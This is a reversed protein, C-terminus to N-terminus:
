LTNANLSRIKAVLTQNIKEYSEYTWGGVHPTFIVNDHQILLDFYHQQEPTFQKIKENELVDLAAGKLKGSELAEVLTKFSINKGRATNLLYINKRFKQLYAHDLMFRTEETLPVHLSLIDAKQYIEEMSAEQAFADGYHTKYKDYALVEVGFGQLRRAFAQGMFGYGIIGVTKGILEVGRNGERDWNGQRIQCDALHVKNFLGLLIAIAHEALADRNGEPANVIRINRAELAEVDLQDLGAGARGIWELKAARDIIKKDINTKSRVILGQYQHISKLIEERKIEPRYEVQWGIQQLLPIISEHMLDIILCTKM